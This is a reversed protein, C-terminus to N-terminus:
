ETFLEQYSANGRDSVILCFSFDVEYVGAEKFVSIYYLNITGCIIFNNNEDFNNNENTLCFEINTDSM